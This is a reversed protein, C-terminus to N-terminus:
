QLPNLFVLDGLLMCVIIVVPLIIKQRDLREIEAALEPRANILRKFENTRRFKYGLVQNFIGRIDPDEARM